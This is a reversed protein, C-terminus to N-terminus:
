LNGFSFCIIFQFGPQDILVICVQIQIFPLLRGPPFVIVFPNSPPNKLQSGLFVFNKQRELTGDGNLDLRLDFKIKTANPSIGITYDIRGSRVTGSLDLTNGSPTPVIGQPAVNGSIQQDLSTFVGDTELIIRFAHDTLWDARGQVSVRIHTNDVADIYFGPQIIPPPLFPLVTIFQTASSSAGRSDTVTLTVMFTGPSLYAHFATQGTATFGDGFNWFHQVIFDGFDPDYSNSTFVVTQGVWPNTPSFSFLAVPPRNPPQIGVVQFSTWASAIRGVPIIGQIAAQVQQAFQQPNTCLVPFPDGPNLPTIIQRLDLPDLSAFVQVYETGTPPVVLFRYTTKDPLVYLGVPVLNNPSFANPFILTCKGAADIDVVNLYVWSVGPATTQIFLRIEEGVQYTRDPQDVNITVQIQDSPPIIIIGQPAQPLAIQGLGLALGLLVALLTLRRM